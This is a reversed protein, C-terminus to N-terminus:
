SSPRLYSGILNSNLHSPPQAFNNKSPGLEEVILTKISKVRVHASSLNFNCLLKFPTLIKYNPSQIQFWWSFYVWILVFTGPIPKSIQSIDIIKLFLVIKCPNNFWYRTPLEWELVNETTMKSAGENNFYRLLM